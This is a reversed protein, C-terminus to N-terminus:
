RIGVLTALVGTMLMCLQEFIVIDGNRHVAFASADVIDGDLSEETCEFVLLDVDPFVLVDLFEFRSDPVEDRVVVGLSKM